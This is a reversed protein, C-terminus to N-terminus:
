GEWHHWRAVDVVVEPGLRGEPASCNSVSSGRVFCSSAFHGNVTGRRCRRRSVVPRREAGDWWNVDGLCSRRQAQGDGAM